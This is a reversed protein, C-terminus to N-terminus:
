GGRHVPTYMGNMSSPTLIPLKALSIDLNKRCLQSYEALNSQESVVLYEFFLYSLYGNALIYDIESYSDVSFYVNQCIQTFETLPLIQALWALRSNSANELKLM